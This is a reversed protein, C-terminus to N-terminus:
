SRKFSLIQFIFIDWVRKFSWLSFLKQHGIPFDPHNRHIHPVKTCHCAIFWRTSAIRRRHPHGIFFNGNIPVANKWSVHLSMRSGYLSKIQTSAVFINQLFLKHSWLLHNNESFDSCLFTWPSRWFIWIRENIVALLILYFFMSVYNNDTNSPINMIYILEIRLTLSANLIKVSNSIFIIEHSVLAFKETLYIVNRRKGNRNIIIIRFLDDDNIKTISIVHNYVVPM